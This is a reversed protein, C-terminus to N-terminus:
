KLGELIEKGKKDVFLSLSKFVQHDTFKLKYANELLDVLENHYQAYGLLQERNMSAEKNCYFIGETPKKLGM